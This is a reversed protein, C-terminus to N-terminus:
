PAMYPETIRSLPVLPTTPLKELQRVAVDIGPTRRAQRVFPGGGVTLTPIARAAPQAQSGAKQQMWADPDPLAPAQKQRLWTEPDPLSQAKKQGLWVDPDPLQNQIAM